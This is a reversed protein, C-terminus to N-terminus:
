MGSINYSIDKWFKKSVQDLHYYYNDRHNLIYASIPIIVNKSEEYSGV